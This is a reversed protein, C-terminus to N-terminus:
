IRQVFRITGGTRLQAIKPLDKNVVKGITAYGGVTQADAMLIIPQGNTPVQITGFQTAESIIDGSAEFELAPGNLFYGMRDGGRMTYTANFFTQVSEKRFLHMHPSDWLEVTVDNSYTPIDEVRMGSNCRNKIPINAYLIEDKRVPGGILGKPYVSQSDLVKPSCFGGEPIIYAIGGTAPKTFRITQDKRIYFSKWMPAEIGDISVTLDAGTIAIRHDSLVELTLGGLFLELASEKGNNNMIKMGLHFAQEDMPGSIPMGFRRFGPRGADQITGYVGPKIVRFLPIM